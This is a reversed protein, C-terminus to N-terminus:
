CSVLFPTVTSTVTRSRHTHRTSILQYTTVCMGALCENRHAFAIPLICLTTSINHNATQIALIILRIQASQPGEQSSAGLTNRIILTDPTLSLDHISLPLSLSLASSCIMRHLSDIPYAQCCLTRVSKDAWPNRRQRLQLDSRSAALIGSILYCSPSAPFMRSQSFWLVPEVRNM